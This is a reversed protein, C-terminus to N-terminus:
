NIVILDDDFHQTLITSTVFLLRLFLLVSIFVIYQSSCSSTLVFESLDCCAISLVM